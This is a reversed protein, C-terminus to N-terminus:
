CNEILIKLFKILANNAKEEQSKPNKNFNKIPRRKASKQWCKNYKKEANTM